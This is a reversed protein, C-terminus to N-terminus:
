GFKTTETPSPKELNSKREHTRGREKDSINIVVLPPNPYKLQGQEGWHNAMKPPKKIQWSKPREMKYKEVGGWRQQTNQKDIIPMNEDYVYM